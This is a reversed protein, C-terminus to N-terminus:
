STKKSGFRNLDQADVAYHESKPKKSDDDTLEMSLIRRTETTYYLLYPQSSQIAYWVRRSVGFSQESNATQVTIQDHGYATKEQVHHVIGRIACVDEEIRWFDSRPNLIRKFTSILLAVFVFPFAGILAIMMKNIIFDTQWLDSLFLILLTLMVAFVGVMVLLGIIYDNRIRRYQAGSMVGERNAKLDADTFKLVERLRNEHVDKYERQTM